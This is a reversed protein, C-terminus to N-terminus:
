EKLRLLEDPHESQDPRSALPKRACFPARSRRVDLTQAALAIPLRIPFAASLVLGPYARHQGFDRECSQSRAAFRAIHTDNPPSDGVKLLVLYSTPHQASFGSIGLSLIMFHRACTRFRSASGASIAPRDFALVLSRRSRQFAMNPLAGERSIRRDNRVRAIAYRSWSSAKPPSLGDVCRRSASTAWSPALPDAKAAAGDRITCGPTTSTRSHRPM